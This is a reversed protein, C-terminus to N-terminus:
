LLGFLNSAKPASSLLLEFCSLFAELHVSRHARCGPEWKLERYNTKGQTRRSTNVAFNRATVRKWIGAVQLRRAVHQALQGGTCAHHLQVLVWGILLNVENSRRSEFLPRRNVFFFGFLVNTKPASLSQGFAAERRRARRAMQTSERWM